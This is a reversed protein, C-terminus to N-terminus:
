FMLDIVRLCKANVDGEVDRRIHKDGMGLDFRDCIPLSLIRLNSLAIEYM